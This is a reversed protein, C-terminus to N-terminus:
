RIIFVLGEGFFELGETFRIVVIYVIVVFLFGLFMWIDVLSVFYFEVVKRYFCVGVLWFLGGRFM